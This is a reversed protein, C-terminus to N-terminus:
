HLALPVKITFLEQYIQEIVKRKLVDEKSISLYLNRIRSEILKRDSGKLELYATRLLILSSSGLLASEKKVQSEDPLFLTCFEQNKPKCFLNYFGWTGQTFESLFSEHVVDSASLANKHLRDAAQKTQADLQRGALADGGLLPRLARSTLSKTIGSSSKHLHLLCQLHESAQRNELIANYSQMIGDASTECNKAPFSFAQAA